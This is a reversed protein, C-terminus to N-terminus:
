ARMRHRHISLYKRVALIHKCDGVYRHRNIFDPCDCSPDAMDIEYYLGSVSQSTVKFRSGSVHRVKDVLQEAKRERTFSYSKSYNDYAKRSLADAEGNEERPIWKFSIDRFKRFMEKAEGHLSVVLPAKVRYLGNIQRVCLQSDSNVVVKKKGYGNALLWGMATIVAGYEAVNNTAGDGACVVRCDEYIKKGDNYVVWSCTAVGGPNPECLGDCFVEIIKFVGRNFGM